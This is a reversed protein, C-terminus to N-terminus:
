LIYYIYIYVYIIYMHLTLDRNTDHSGITIKKLNGIHDSPDPLSSSRELNRWMWQLDDAILTTWELDSNLLGWPVDDACAYLAGLHRLRQQRFLDTPDM